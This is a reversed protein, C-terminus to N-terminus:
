ASVPAFNTNHRTDSVGAWPCLVGGPAFSSEDAMLAELAQVEAQKATIFRELGTM